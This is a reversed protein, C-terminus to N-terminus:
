RGQPRRHRVHGRVGGAAPSTTACAGVGGRRGALHAGPSVQLVAGPISEFCMEFCKVSALEVEPACFAHKCKEQGRGVRWADVGPKLSSVVILMEILRKRKPAGRTQGWVLFLQALYNLAVMLALGLATGHRGALAYFRVMAIDSVQDVMSVGAGFLLRARAGISGQRSSLEAALVDMM